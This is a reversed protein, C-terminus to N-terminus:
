PRERPSIQTAARRPAGPRLRLTPRGHGSRARSEVRPSHLCADRHHAQATRAVIHIGILELRPENLPTKVDAIVRLAGLNHEDVGASEDGRGFLVGDIGDQRGGVGASTDNDGSAERLSVAIFESIRKRLRSGYQTKVVIALNGIAYTPDSVALGKRHVSRGIPTPKEREGGSVTRGGPDGPM